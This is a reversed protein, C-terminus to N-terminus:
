GGVLAAFAFIAALLINPVNLILSASGLYRRSNDRIAVMGLILGTFAGILWIIPVIRTLDPPFPVYMLYVYYAGGLAVSVLTVLLAVLGKPYRNYPTM